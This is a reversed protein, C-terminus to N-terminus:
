RAVPARRRLESFFQEVVAVGPPAVKSPESDIFLFRSGDPAVDYSHPGWRDDNTTRAFLVTPQSISFEPTTQIRLSRFTTLHRSVIERGDALWRAAAGGDPTIERAAGGSFPRVMVHPGKEFMTYVIWRGDPSLSPLLEPQPGAVLPSVARDDMNLLKIDPLSTPPDEVFVLGKGGPTWASPWIRNRSRVLSEPAASGDLPQWMIHREEDRRAAYALRQGDTSWLPMGDLGTSTLRSFSGTAFEFIWVDSRPGEAVEVAIRRGDPSLSPSQFARRPVPITETKGQRDIWVLSREEPTAAPQYVLTGDAAADFFAAGNDLETRVGEVVAVPEGAIDQRAADYPAAYLSDGRAYLLHGSQVVQGDFGNTVVTRQVGTTLSRTAVRFIEPGAHITFVVATGDAVISPAHHDIEGASKDPTTLQRLAGGEASVVTLGQERQSVVIDGNPGWSAALM